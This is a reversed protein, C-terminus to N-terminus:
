RPNLASANPGRVSDLTACNGHLVLVDAFESTIIDCKLRCM